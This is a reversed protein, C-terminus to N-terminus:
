KYLNFVCTIDEATLTNTMCHDAYPYMMSAPCRNHDIGIGHGFEHTAITEVYFGGDCSGPSCSLSFFEWADDFFKMDFEVIQRGKRYYWTYTVAIAGGSSEDRFFIENILNQDVAEAITTGAYSLNINSASNWANAGNKIDNKVCNISLENNNTPNIYYPINEPYPWSAFTKCCGGGKPDKPQKGKNGGKGEMKESGLFHFVQKEKKLYLKFIEGEEFLPYNSVKLTMEGVTGGEVVFSVEDNIKGKLKKEVKVDVQSFILYDGWENGDYYSYVNKVKGVLVHTADLSLKQVKTGL